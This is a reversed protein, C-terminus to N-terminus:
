GRNTGPKKPRRDEPGANGKEMERKCVGAVRNLNPATPSVEIYAVNQKQKNPM